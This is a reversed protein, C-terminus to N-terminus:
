LNAYWKNGWEILTGPQFSFLLQYLSIYCNCPISVVIECAQMCAHVCALSVTARICVGSAVRVCGVGVVACGCACLCFRVFKNDIWLYIHPFCLHIILSMNIQTDQSTSSTPAIIIIFATTTESDFM